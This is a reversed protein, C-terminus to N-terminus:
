KVPKPDSLGNPDCSIVLIDDGGTWLWYRGAELKLKGYFGEDFTIKSTANTIIDRQQDWTPLKNIKGVYVDVIWKKPDLVGSHQFRRATIYIESGNTTFEAVAGGVHPWGLEISSVPHGVCPPLINENNVPSVAKKGIAEENLREVLFFYTSVVIGIILTVLVIKIAKDM